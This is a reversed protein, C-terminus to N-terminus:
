NEIKQSVREAKLRAKEAAKEKRLSAAELKELYEKREDQLSFKEPNCYTIKLRAYQDNPLHIIAGKSVIETENGLEQIAGLAVKYLENRIESQEKVSLKNVM